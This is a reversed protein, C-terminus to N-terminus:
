ISRRRIALNQQLSQWRASPIVRIKCYPVTTAWTRPNLLRPLVFPCSSRATKQVM